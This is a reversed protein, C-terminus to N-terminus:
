NENGQGLGLRGANPKAALWERNTLYWGVTAALGSELSKSPRWQLTREAKATNVAYRFDHGPRDAVLTIQSAYSGGDSCPAQADLFACLRSALDRNSLEAGGGFNYKEGPVGREVTALLADVHDEVFLWDRVNEGTGYIPIERGDLANRLVTPILKEAHQFPGYNNSCNTLIVPLGYTRHWARALHDASAKSASYPSNPAYTSGETFEGSPGLSGYVEDTSVMVFRFDRAQQPRRSLYSRVAELLTYTGVVNTQLFAAPADISRDVHSEAALHFVVDPEFDSLADMMTTGECIDAVLLRYDTYAECDAVARLDSAYTLKDINLVAANQSVLRRVVASGIFGAGGTVIARM